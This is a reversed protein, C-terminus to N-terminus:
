IFFEFFDEVKKALASIRGRTLAFAGSGHYLSLLVGCFLPPCKQGGGATEYPDTKL